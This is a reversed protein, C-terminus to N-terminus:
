RKMFFGEVESKLQQFLSEHGQNDSKDCLSEVLGRYYGEQDSRGRRFREWVQDGIKEHEVAITRINHLKDACAVLRVALPAAKLFKLTRAKREEWPLSKDPESCGEVISAIKEGFKEHITDLTVAKDEVTDHLIGSIIVDDSCGAKALIIGVALPHTIYPIDTGKRVQNQHARVAVEIALDIM